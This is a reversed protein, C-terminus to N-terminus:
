RESRALGDLTRRGGRLSPALVVDHSIVLSVSALVFSSASSSSIQPRSVPFSHVKRVPLTGINEKHRRCQGSKAECVYVSTADVQRSPSLPGCTRTNPQM